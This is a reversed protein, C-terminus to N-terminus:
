GPCARNAALIGTAHAQLQALVDMAEAARPRPVFLHDHCAGAMVNCPLGRETFAACILATIGIADLQTTVSLAIWAAVFMPELDHAAADGATLVLTLGEHERFSALPECGPPVVGDPRCVFVYTEDALKPELVAFVRALETDMLM